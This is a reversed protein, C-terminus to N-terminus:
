GAGSDPDESRESVPTPPVPADETPENQLIHRPTGDSPEQPEEPAATAEDEATPAACEEQADDEDAFEERMERLARLQRYAAHLARDLRQEYLALREIPSTGRKVVFQSAVFQAGSRLSVVDDDDDDDDDDADWLPENRERMQLRVDAAKLREVMDANWMAEEVQAVRRLRWTLSVVRAVIEREASGHPRLDAAMERALEDLEEKSEGHLRSTQATMGHTVANQASRAKGEPTCPGTSRAANARNAALKEASIEPHSSDDNSARM